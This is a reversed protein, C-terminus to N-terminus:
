KFDEPTIAPQRETTKKKWLDCYRSQKLKLFLTKMTQFKLLKQTVTNWWYM